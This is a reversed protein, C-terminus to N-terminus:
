FKSGLDTASKEERAKLVQKHEVTSVFASGGNGTPSYEHLIFLNDGAVQWARFEGEVLGGLATVFQEKNKRVPQGLSRTFIAEMTPFQSSRFNFSVSSLKGYSFTLWQTIEGDATAIPHRQFIMDKQLDEATIGNAKCYAFQPVGGLAIGQAKFVPRVVTRDARENPNIYRAGPPLPALKITPNAIEGPQEQGPISPNREQGRLLPVCLLLMFLMCAVNTKM